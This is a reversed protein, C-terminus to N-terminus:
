EALRDDTRLQSASLRNPTWRGAQGTTTLLDTMSRSGDPWRDKHTWYGSKHLRSLQQMTTPLRRIALLTEAPATLVTVPTSGGGLRGHRTQTFGLHIGVPGGIQRILEKIQSLAQFAQHHACDHAFRDGAFFLSNKAFNLLYCAKSLSFDISRRLNPLSGPRNFPPMPVKRNNRLVPPYLTLVPM